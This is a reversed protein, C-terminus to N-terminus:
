EIRLVMEDRAAFAGSWVSRAKQEIVTMVADNHDPDHHFLALQKANAARCLRIGEQWTSHGWGVKQPFEEATY